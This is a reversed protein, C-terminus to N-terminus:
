IEVHFHDDHRAASCGQFRVRPDVLELREALHTEIFMRTLPAGTKDDLLAHIMARTRVRDMVTDAMTEQLWEMDWRLASMKGRCPQTEDRNPGEYKWYGIPSPPESPVFGMPTERQYAYALDIARGNRHSLHPLMPLDFDFPFGADLFYVIQSPDKKNLESAVDELKTKLAPTVYHRSLLCTWKSAPQLSTESSFCRLPVREALAALGPMVALNNVLFLVIFIVIAFVLGAFPAGAKALKDRFRALLPSMVWLLIGSTQTLVTLAAALAILMLGGFFSRPLISLPGFIFSWVSLRSPGVFREYSM